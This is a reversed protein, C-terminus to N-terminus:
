RGSMETLNTFAWGPQIVALMGCYETLFGYSFEPASSKSVRVRMFHYYLSILIETLM